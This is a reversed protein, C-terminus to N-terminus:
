LPGPVAIVGAAFGIAKMFITGYVAWWTYTQQSMRLM